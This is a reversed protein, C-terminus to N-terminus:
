VSHRLREGLPDRRKADEYTGDCGAKYFRIHRTRYEIAWVSIAHPVLARQTPNCTRLFDGM